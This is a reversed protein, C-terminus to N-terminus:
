RDVIERELEVAAGHVDPGVPEDALRADAALQNCIEMCALLFPEGRRPATLTKAHEGHRCGLLPDRVHQGSLSTSGSIARGTEKQVRCWLAERLVTSESRRPDRALAVVDRQAM